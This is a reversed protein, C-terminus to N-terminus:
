TLDSDVIDAEVEGTNLDIKIQTDQDPFRVFKVDLQDETFGYEELLKLTFAQEEAPDIEEEDEVATAKDAPGIGRVYVRLREQQKFRKKAEDLMERIDAHYTTPMAIHGMVAEAKVPDHVLLGLCPGLGGSEAVMPRELVMWEGAELTVLGEMDEPQERKATRKKRIVRREDM